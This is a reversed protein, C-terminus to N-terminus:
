IGAKRAPQWHTRPLLPDPKSSIYVQTIQKAGTQDKSHKPRWSRIPERFPTPPHSAIKLQNFWLSWSGDLHQRVQVTKKAFSLRTKTQPIDFTIGGLRVCNDNGVVAAYAFALKLFREQASIKRFVSGQSDPKRAFRRNYRPIFTQLLWSNARDMDTIGELALEAILRDQLVGFSREVRGKAQPSYAPISQIGLEAFVRGVHTPYQYGQLQEELSWHDDNRVLSSHCDHYISLPIGHRRLVMDLLRLYAEATEAPVFFAALITNTADDVALMLCCPPYDPGFWPHPSGDWQIMIGFKEKPPRRSRHKPPRRRRKPPIGAARLIHRVSVRCIHINEREQLMEAFHVDNFQSYINQRLDIIRQRLEPNLARPSPNGRNGHALGSTGNHVYRAKLRKAQRYSVCLFQCIEKLTQQKTM